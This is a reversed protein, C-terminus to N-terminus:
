TFRRAQDGGNLPVCAQLIQSRPVRAPVVGACDTSCACDTSYQVSGPRSDVTWFGCKCCLLQRWCLSTWSRRRRRQSNRGTTPKRLPNSQRPGPRIGGSGAGPGVVPHGSKGRKLNPADAHRGIRLESGAPPARGSVPASTTTTASRMKTEVNGCRADSPMSPGTQRSMSTSRAVTRSHVLLEAAAPSGGQHHKATCSGVPARAPRPDPLPGAVM